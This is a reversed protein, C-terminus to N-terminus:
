PKLNNIDNLSEVLAAKVASKLASPDAAAQSNIGGGIRVFQLILNLVVIGIVIIVMRRDRWLISVKGMEPDDLRCLRTNQDDLRTHAKEAKNDAASIAPKMVAQCKEVSSGILLQTHDDNTKARSTM